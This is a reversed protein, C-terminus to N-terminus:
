DVYSVNCLRPKSSCQQYINPSNGKGYCGMIYPHHFTTQYAYNGNADNFGNCVDVNCNERTVGNNHYPTYIPRGDKSVAFASQYPVALWGTKMYDQFDGSYGGSQFSATTYTCPSASHYHFNGTPTPHAICYDASEKASDANTVFANSNVFTAPYFPDVNYLSFANFVLVGSVAVGWATAQDKNMNNTHQVSSPINESKSISIDCLYENM